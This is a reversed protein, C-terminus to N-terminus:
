VAVATVSRVSNTLHMAFYSEDCLRCSNKIYTNQESFNVSLDNLVEVFNNMRVAIEQELLANAIFGALFSKGTGVVGWLLYDINEEKMTEWDKVYLKALVTPIQLFGKIMKLHGNRYPNIQSYIRQSNSMKNPSVKRDRVPVSKKGEAPIRDYLLNPKSSGQKKRVLLGADELENLAKKITMHSKVM